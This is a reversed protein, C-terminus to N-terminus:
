NKKAAIGLILANSFEMRNLEKKKSNIIREIGERILDIQQDKLVIMAKLQEFWEMVWPVDLLKQLSKPLYTHQGLKLTNNELIQQFRLRIKQEPSIERIKLKRYLEKNNKKFLRSSGKLALVCEFYDAFLENFLYNDDFYLNFWTNINKNKISKFYMLRLLMNLIIHGIEHFVYSLEEPFFISSRPISMFSLPATPLSLINPSFEPSLRTFASYKLFDHSELMHFNDAVKLIVDHIILDLTSLYKQYSGQFGQIPLEGSEFGLSISRLRQSIAEFFRSLVIVIDGQYEEAGVLYDRYGEMFEDPIESKLFKVFENWSQFIYIFDRNFDKLSLSHLSAQLRMLPDVMHDPFHWTKIQKDGIKLLKFINNHYIKDDSFSESDCNVTHDPDIGLKTVTEIIPPSYKRVWPLFKRTFYAFFDRENTRKKPWICFDEDGLQLESNFHTNDPFNRICASFGPYFRMAIQYNIYRDAPIKDALVNFQSVLKGKSYDTPIAVITSTAKIIYKDAIKTTRLVLIQNKIDTISNAATVLIFDEVGYSGLMFSILSKDNSNAFKCRSLMVNYLKDYGYLDYLSEAVKTFTFGVFPYNNIKKAIRAPTVDSLLTGIHFRHEYALPNIESSSFKFLSTSNNSFYLRILDFRGFPLFTLLIDSQSSHLNFYKKEKFFDKHRCAPISLLQLGFGIRNRYPM